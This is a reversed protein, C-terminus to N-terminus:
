DLEEVTMDETKQADAAVVAAASKGRSKKKQQPFVVFDPKSRLAEWSRCM